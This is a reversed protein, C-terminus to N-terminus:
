NEKVEVGVFDPSLDLVGNLRQEPSPAVACGAHETVMKEQMVVDDGGCVHAAPGRVRVDSFAGNSREGL